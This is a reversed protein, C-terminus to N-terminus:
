ADAAAISLLNRRISDAIQAMTSREFLEEPPLADDGFEQEARAILKVASLSTAGTAFFDDDASEVPVGLERCVGIVWSCLDDTAPVPSM